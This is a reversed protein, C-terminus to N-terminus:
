FLNIAITYDIKKEYNKKLGCDNFSLLLIVCM